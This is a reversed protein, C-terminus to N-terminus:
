LWQNKFYDEISCIVKAPSGMVFSNSPITKSVISNPGIIVNSGIITGPLIITNHGVYVNNGIRVNAARVKKLYQIISGDHALVHVNDGLTVDDGITIHFSHSPDLVVGGMRTFNKGVVLGRRIFKELNQEGRIASLIRRIFYVIKNKM